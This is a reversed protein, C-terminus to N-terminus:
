KLVEITKGSRYKNIIELYGRDALIGMNRIVTSRSIKLASSIRNTTLLYEYNNPYEDIVSIILSLLIKQPPHLDNLELVKWPMVIKTVLEKLPKM